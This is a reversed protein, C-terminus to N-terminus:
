MTGTTQEFITAIDGLGGRNSELLVNRRRHDQHVRRTKDKKAMVVCNAARVSHSRHIAGAKKQKQGESPIMVTREPSYRRQNATHPKCSSDTLPLQLKAFNCALFINPNVSLM